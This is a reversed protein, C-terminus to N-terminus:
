ERVGEIVGECVCVFARVCARGGVGGRTALSAVGPEVRAHAPLWPLAQLGALSTFGHTRGRRRFLAAGLSNRGESHNLTRVM